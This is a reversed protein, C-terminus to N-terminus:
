ELIGKRQYSEPHERQALRAMVQKQLIHIYRAFEEADKVHLNDLASFTNYCARLSQILNREQITLKM